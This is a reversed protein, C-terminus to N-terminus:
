DTVTHGIIIHMEAIHGLIGLSQNLGVFREHHQRVGVAIMADITSVGAVMQEGANRVEKDTFQLLEAKRFLTAASNRLSDTRLAVTEQPLRRCSKYFCLLQKADPSAVGKNTKLDTRILSRVPNHRM